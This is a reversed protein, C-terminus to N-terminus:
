WVRGTFAGSQFGALEQHSEKGMLEECVKMEVVETHHRKKEKKREKQYIKSFKPVIEFMRTVRQGM